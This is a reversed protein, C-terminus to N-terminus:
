GTAAIIESLADILDMTPDGKRLFRVAGSGLMSQVSRHDDTASLAVVTTEPCLRRLETAAFQGSGPMSVDLLALEPRERCAAEIAETATTATAVVLFAPDDGLLESIASLVQPDDDALLITTVKEAITM